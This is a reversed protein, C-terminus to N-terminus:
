ILSIFMLLIIGAMVLAGILDNLLEKKIKM